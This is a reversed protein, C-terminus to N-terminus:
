MSDRVEPQGLKISELLAFNQPFPDASSQYFDTLCGEARAKKVQADVNIQTNM